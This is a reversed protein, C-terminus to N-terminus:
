PEVTNLGEKRLMAELQAVYGDDQTRATLPYSRHLWSYKGASAPNYPLLSIRKAGLALAKLGVWRVVQPSDNHGPILPVRVIVESRSEILRSLNDLILRNSVGTYRTHLDEDPHKLDYLFLDTLAALRRLWDWRVYGCTEMATHISRRKLLGLVARSFEYQFTPEGGTLTVGGGSSELFPLLQLAHKEIEGATVTHGKVELAQSACGEVCLRCLRCNSRDREDVLENSRLGEPCVQLCNGCRTCRTQYWVIEPRPLISEPSHCWLCSLPCGKMYVSMRLGPGDHIATEDVAFILGRIHRSM